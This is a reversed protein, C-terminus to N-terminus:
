LYRGGRASRTANKSLSPKSSTVRAVRWRPEASGVIGPLSPGNKSTWRVWPESSVRADGEFVARAEGRRGATQDGVQAARREAIAAPRRWVGLETPRHDGFRPCCLV